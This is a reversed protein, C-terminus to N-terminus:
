PRSDRVRRWEEMAQQYAREQGPYPEITVDLLPNDLPLTYVQPNDTKTHDAQFVKIAANLHSTERATRRDLLIGEYKLPTPKVNLVATVRAGRWDENTGPLVWPKAKMFRFLNREIRPLNLAQTVVNPHVKRKFFKQLNRYVM